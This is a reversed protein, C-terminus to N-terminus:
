AAVGTKWRASENCTVGDRSRTSIDFPCGSEDIGSHCEATDADCYAAPEFPDCRLDDLFPDRNEGAGCLYCVEGTCAPCDEIYRKTTPCIDQPHVLEEIRATTQGISSSPM